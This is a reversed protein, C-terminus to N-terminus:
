AAEKVMVPVKLLSNLAGQLGLFNGSEFGHRAMAHLKNMPVSELFRGIDLPEVCDYVGDKFLDPFNQAIRRVLAPVVHKEGVTALLRDGGLREALKMTTKEGAELAKILAWSGKDNKAIYAGTRGDISVKDLRKGVKQLCAALEGILKAVRDDSVDKRDVLTRGAQLVQAMTTIGMAALSNAFPENILGPRGAEILGYVLGASHAERQDPDIAFVPSFVNKVDHIPVRVQATPISQKLLPSFSTSEVRL